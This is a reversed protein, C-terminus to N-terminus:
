GHRKRRALANRESQMDIWDVIDIRVGLGIDVLALV